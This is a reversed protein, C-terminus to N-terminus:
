QHRQQCQWHHQYHNVNVWVRYKRGWGSKREDLSLLSPHTRIKKKEHIVDSRRERGEGSRSDKAACTMRTALPPTFGSRAPDIPSPSWREWLSLIVNICVARRANSPAPNSSTGMMAPVPAPLVRSVTSSQLSAASAPASKTMTIVLPYKEPTKAFLVFASFANKESTAALLWRGTIM